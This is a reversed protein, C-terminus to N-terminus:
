LRQGIAPEPFSERADARPRDLMWLGLDIAKADCGVLFVKGCGTTMNDAKVVDFRGVRLGDHGKFAVCVIDRADCKVALALPHDGGGFVVSNPDPVCARTQNLAAVIVVVRDVINDDVGVLTLKDRGVPATDDHNPIQAIVLTCM